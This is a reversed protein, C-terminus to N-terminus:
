LMKGITLLLEDIIEDDDSRIKDVVCGRIHNELILKSVSTLAARAASVQNLIDDCYQDKEIMGKIGRIQGEIQNLRRILNKKLKQDRATMREACGECQNQNEIKSM